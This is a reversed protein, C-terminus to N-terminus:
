RSTSRITKHNGNKTTVQYIKKTNCERRITIPNTKEEENKKSRRPLRNKRDAQVMTPMVCRHKWGLFGFGPHTRREDPTHHEREYFSVSAIAFSGWFFARMCKLIVATLNNEQKNM